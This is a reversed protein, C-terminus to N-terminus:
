EPKKAIEEIYDLLSAIDEDSLRVPAMRTGRVVSQPNHLYKEMIDRNWILGNEGAKVMAPSYRFKERTGAQRGIIDQLSPGVRNKDRDIYHCVACKKYVQAGQESGQANANCALFPLCLLALGLSLTRNNQKM